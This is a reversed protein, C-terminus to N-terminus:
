TYKSPTRVLSSRDQLVFGRGILESYFHKCVFCSRPNFVHYPLDYLTPYKRDGSTPALLTSFNHKEYPISM